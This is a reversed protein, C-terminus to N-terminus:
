ELLGAWGAGAFFALTLVLVAVTAPRNARAAGLPGNRRNLVLLTLALAPLFCAGFKSYALQISKFELGLGLLPVFTLAYLYARYPRSRTDVETGPEMGKPLARLRWFDAFVYPVAQWVGVVSSFVAAWAGVLFMWRAAPGLEGELSDGLRVILGAGRGEAPIRSGIIVMGACFLATMAHGVGLDVRCLALESPGRRGAERIWYGYCLITLTGGVGGVLAVTQGLGAGDAHPISPVLLGRLVAGWDPRSAVATVVVTAFMLAVCAGMVQEFRRFGGRLAIALGLLSHLVGFVVKGREPTEFVPVMAHVAVGCASVLASGVFWTWPLLYLLFAYRLVPPTRRMVGELLTEGTALQFRTLGESLVFKLGAGVLVAWLCALGLESGCLASTALDGAGVGTAAVLM